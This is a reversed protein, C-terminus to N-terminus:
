VEVAKRDLERINNVIDDFAIRELLKERERTYDGQGVSFQRMFYAAGVTGLERKLASMGAKRVVNPNRYDILMNNM